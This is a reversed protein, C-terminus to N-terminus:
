VARAARWASYFAAMSDYRRSHVPECARAVVEFLDCTGRFVDADLTGDSLFVLATRGTVFANTREDILAGLEFEEPAMFRTSCFMRGMEAGIQVGYSVIGSDQTQAGFEAFV